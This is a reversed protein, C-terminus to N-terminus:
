ATSATGLIQVRLWAVAEDFQQQPVSTYHKERISSPANALMLNALHGYKQSRELLDAGVRRLDKFMLPLGHRRRRHKWQQALLDYVRETSTGIERVTYPKGKANVFVLPGSAARHREIAAVSEPWLKFKVTPVADKRRRKLKVRRRVWYGDPTIDDTKIQAIDVFQASCNLALLACCHLMSSAPLKALTARVADLDVPTVEKTEVHFSYEGNHLNPPVVFGAVEEGLFRVFRKFNNYRARKKTGVVPLRAVHSYYTRVTDTGIDTVPRKGGFWDRFETVCQRIEAVTKAARRDAAVVVALFADCWHGCTQDAPAPKDRKMRDAWIRGDGFVADLAAPDADLPITWGLLTRAAELRRRTAADLGVGESPDAGEVEAIRAEVAAREGDLGHREAYGARRRLEALDGAYPREAAAAAIGDLQGKLHRWWENACIYSREHTWDEEPLRLEACTVRYRTGRYMKSWRCAPKGEWSMMARRPM